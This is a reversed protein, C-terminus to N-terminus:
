LDNALADLELQSPEGGTPVPNPLRTIGQEQAIKDKMADYRTKVSTLQEALTTESSLDFFSIFDEPIKAETLLGVAQARKKADQEATKQDKITKELIDFRANLEANMEPKKKDDVRPPTGGKKVFDFELELKAKNTALAEAIKKDYESQYSPSNILENFTPNLTETLTQVAGEIGSEETLGLLVAFGKTAENKNLALILNNKIEETM